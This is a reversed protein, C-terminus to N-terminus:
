FRRNLQDLFKLSRFWPISVNSLRLKYKVRLGFLAKQIGALFVKIYEAGHSRAELIDTGEQALEAELFLGL